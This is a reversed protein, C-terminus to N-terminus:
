RWLMWKVNVNKEILQSQRWCTSYFIVNLGTCGHHPENGVLVNWGAFQDARIVHVIRGDCARSKHELLKLFGLSNRPPKEDDTLSIESLAPRRMKDSVMDIFSKNLLVFYIKGRGFNLQKHWELLEWTRHPKFIESMFM